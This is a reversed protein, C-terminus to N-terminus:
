ALRYCFSLIGRATTTRLIEICEQIDKETDSLVHRLLDAVSAVFLSLTPNNPQEAEAMREYYEAVKEVRNWLTEGFFLSLSMDDNDFSSENIECRQVLTKISQPLSDGM